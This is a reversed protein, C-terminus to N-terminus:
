RKGYTKGEWGDGKMMWERFIVLYKVPLEKIWQPVHMTYSNHGACKVADFVAKSHVRFGVNNRYDWKFGMRTLLDAIDQWYKSTQNQCIIVSYGKYEQAAKFQMPNQVQEYIPVPYAACQIVNVLGGPRSGEACYIGLFAVWDELSVEYSKPHGEPGAAPSDLYITTYSPERSEIAGCTVPVKFKCADISPNNRRLKAVDEALFFGTGSFGKRAGLHMRGYMRHEPTVLQDIGQNKFHLLEGDYRFKVLQKPKEFVLHGYANQSALKDTPLVQPWPVWGRNTLAETDASFCWSRRDVIMADLNGAAVAAIRQKQEEVKMPWQSVDLGTLEQAHAVKMVRVIENMRQKKIESALYEQHLKRVSALIPAFITTVFKPFIRM